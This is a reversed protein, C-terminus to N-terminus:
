GEFIIRATVLQNLRLKGEPNPLEVRVHATRTREDIVPDVYSVRGKFVEGPAADTRVNVRQGPSVRELDKEYIDLQVWLLSLDAVTFVDTSREVAQGITVSRKLVLGAIPARLPILVGDDSGEGLRSIDAADFGIAQLHTLAARMKARQSVALADAVERQRDSSIQRQALERERAANADAADLAARAAVYDARAQGAEVSQIHGLTQGRHVRDGVGALL